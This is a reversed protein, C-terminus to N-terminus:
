ATTVAAKAFDWHMAEIKHGEPDRVFCGYYAETYEERPGPAGDDSAGENIAAEYFANVMSQSEALFAFHTGNATEAQEGNYPVQVWFEPFQKGWAIASNPVEVIRRAGLTALVKDYFQVAEAFRNSGISVHSMISPSATAQEPVQEPSTDSETMNSEQSPSQVPDM